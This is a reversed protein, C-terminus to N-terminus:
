CKEEKNLLIMFSFILWFLIALDNKFYPTDVLGQIIITAFAAMLVKACSSKFSESGAKFFLFVLWIFAIFGFISTTLWFMLFVNHPSLALPTIYEPYNTRDQTFTGFAEQFNGLGVGLVPHNKGMQLSTKWIEWRINNSSSVRGGSEPSVSLDPRFFFGAGVIVLVIGFILVVKAWLYKKFYNWFFLILYLGVGGGVALLGARSGSFYIAVLSILTLLWMFIAM